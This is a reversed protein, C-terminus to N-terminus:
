NAAAFLTMDDNMNLLQALGLFKLERYTKAMYEPPYPMNNELWWAVMNLLSSALYNALFDDSFPRKEPLLPLLRKLIDKVIYAQIRRNIQGSGESGLLVRYLDSNKAAHEFVIIIPLGSKLHAASPPGMSEVLEDFLSELSKLLLAEKDKYHLYFTARGLNAKDTIDQVTVAEYGKELILTMLADRLLQRTRVIRRDLKQM